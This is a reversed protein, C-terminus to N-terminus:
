LLRTWTRNGSFGRMRVSKAWATLMYLYGTLFLDNLAQGILLNGDQGVSQWRAAAAIASAKIQFNHNRKLWLWAWHRRDSMILNEYHANDRWCEEPRESRYRERGM